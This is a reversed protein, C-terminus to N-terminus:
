PIIRCVPCHLQGMVASGVLGWRSGGSGLGRGVGRLGGRIAGSMAGNGGGGIAGVLAGRAAGALLSGGILGATHWGNHRRGQLQAGQADGQLPPQAAVAAQMPPQQQQLARQRVTFDEASGTLLMGGDATHQVLPNRFPSDQKMAIQAEVQAIAEQIQPDNPSGILATRYNGLATALDGRAEAIAGLNYSAHSNFPSLQLAEKFKKEAEEANGAQYAATGHRLHEDVNPASHHGDAAPEDKAVPSHGSIDLQPAIPPMYESTTTPIPKHVSVKPAPTHKTATKAAGKAVPKASPASGAVTGHVAKELVETRKALAGTKEGGVTQAELESIRAHLPKDAHQTGFITEEIKGVRHMLGKPEAALAPLSSSILLMSAAALLSCRRTASMASNTHM